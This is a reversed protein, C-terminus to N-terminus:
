GFYRESFITAVVIALEYALVLIMCVVAVNFTIRVLLKGSSGQKKALVRGIVACILGVAAIAIGAPSIWIEIVLGIVDLVLSAISLSMVTGTLPADNKIGAKMERIIRRNSRVVLVEGGAIGLATVVDLAILILIYVPFGSAAATTLATSNIM